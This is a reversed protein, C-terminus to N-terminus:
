PERKKQESLAETAGPLARERLVAFHAFFLTKASRVWIHTHIASSATHFYSGLPKPQHIACRVWRRSAPQEEFFLDDIVPLRSVEWLHFDRWWGEDYSPGLHLGKLRQNRTTANTNKHSGLGRDIQGWKLYMEPLRRHPLLHKAFRLWNRPCSPMTLFLALLIPTRV